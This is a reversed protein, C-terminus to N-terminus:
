SVLLTSLSSSLALSRPFSTTIYRKGLSSARAGDNAPFLKADNTWSQAVWSLQIGLFCKVPYPYDFTHLQSDDRLPHYLQTTFIAASLIPRDRCSPEPTSYFFWDKTSHQFGVHLSTIQYQSAMLSGMGDHRRGRAERRVARHAYRSGRRRM